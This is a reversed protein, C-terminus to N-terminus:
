IFIFNFPKLYSKLSYNDTSYNKFEYNERKEITFINKITELTNMKLNSIEDQVFSLLTKHHSNKYNEYYFELAKNNKQTQEFNYDTGNIICLYQFDALTLNLSKLISTLNYEMITHEFINIHRIIRPCGYVFLDNDESMCAYVDNYIVMSACLKDAEGNAVIFKHKLLSLLMKVSRFDSNRLKLTKMKITKIEQLLEKKQTTEYLEMLEKYKKLANSRDEQRQNIVDQKEEPPIGDFVFIPEIKYYELLKCFEYLSPILTGKKLFRYLYNNIDIVIKKNKYIFLGKKKINKECKANLFRSLGHIGM